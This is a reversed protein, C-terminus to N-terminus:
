QLNEHPNEKFNAANYPTPKIALLWIFVVGLFLAILVIILTYIM